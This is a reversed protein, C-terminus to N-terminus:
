CLKHKWAWLTLASSVETTFDNVCCLWCECVCEVQPLSLWSLSADQWIERDTTATVTQTVWESAPQCAPKSRRCGPQHCCGGCGLLPRWAAPGDAPHVSGSWGSNPKDPEGSGRWQGCVLGSQCWVCLIKYCTFVYLCSNMRCVRVASLIHGIIIILCVPHKQNKPM